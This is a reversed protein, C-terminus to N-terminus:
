RLWREFDHEFRRVHRAENEADLNALVVPRGIWGARQGRKGARGDEEVEVGPLRKLLDEVSANPRVRFAAANFAAPSTEKRVSSFARASPLQSPIWAARPGLGSLM